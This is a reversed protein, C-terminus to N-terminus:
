NPSNTRLKYFVEVGAAPGTLHVEARVSSAILNCANKALLHVVLLLTVVLSAELVGM